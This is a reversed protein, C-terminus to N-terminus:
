RPMKTICAAPWNMCPVCAPECYEIFLRSPRPKREEEQILTFFPAAHAGLINMACELDVAPDRLVIDAPSRISEELIGLQHLAQLGKNAHGAPM